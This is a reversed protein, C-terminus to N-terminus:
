VGESVPIARKVMSHKEVRRDVFREELLHNGNVSKPDIERFPFNPRASKIVPQHNAVSNTIARHCVIVVGFRHSEIDMGLRNVTKIKAEGEIAISGRLLAHILGPCRVM